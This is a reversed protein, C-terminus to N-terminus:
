ENVLVFALCCCPQTPPFRGFHLIITLSLFLRGFHRRQWQAPPRKSIRLEGRAGPSPSNLARINGSTTPRLRQNCDTKAPPVWLSVLRTGAAAEQLHAVEHQRVCSDSHRHNNPCAHPDGDEKAQEASAEDDWPHSLIIGDQSPMM